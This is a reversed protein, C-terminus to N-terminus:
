HYHGHLKKLTINKKWQLEQLWDSLWDSQLNALGAEGKNKLTVKSVGVVNQLHFHFVILKKYQLDEQVNVTSIICM